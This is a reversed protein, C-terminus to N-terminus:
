EVRPAGEPLNLVDEITYDARMQRVPDPQWMMPLVEYRCAVALATNPVEETGL